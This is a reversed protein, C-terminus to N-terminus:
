RRGILERWPWVVVGKSTAVIVQGDSTYALSGSFTAGVELRALEELSEAAWFHLSGTTVGALLRGDPSAALGFLDGTLTVLREPERRAAGPLWSLWGRPTVEGSPAWRALHPRQGSEPGAREARSAVVAGDPLVVCSLTLMRAPCDLREILEGSRADRVEVDKARPVAVLDGTPFPVISWGQYLGGIRHLRRGVGRESGWEYVSLWNGGDKGEVAVLLDRKGGAFAAGWVFDLRGTGGEAITEGDAVRVLALAQGPAGVAAVGGACARPYVDLARRRGWDARDAWLASWGRVVSDGPGGGGALAETPSLHHVTLLAGDDALLFASVPGVNSRLSPPGAPPLGDQQRDSCPGCSAGTWALEAPPGCAGCRCLVVLEGKGARTRWACSLEAATEFLPFPETLLGGPADPGTLVRRFFSAEGAVAGEIYWHRRGRGDTWWCAGLVAGRPAKHVPYERAFIGVATNAAQRLLEDASPPLGWASEPLNAAARATAAAQQYAWGFIRTVEAETLDVRRCAFCPM